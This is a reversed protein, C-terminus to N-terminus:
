PTFQSLFKKDKNEKVENVLKRVVNHQSIPADEPRKWSEPFQPKVKKSKNHRTDIPIDDFTEKSLDKSENLLKNFTQVLWRANQTAEPHQNSSFKFLNKNHNFKNGALIKFKRTQQENLELDEIRCSLTVTRNFGNNNDTFDTNFSLKIPNEQNTQPKYEQRFKALLPMEYASVRTLHEIRRKEHPTKGADIVPINSYKPPLGRQAVPTNTMHREKFNEIEYTYDLTPKKQKLAVITSLIASREADDPNYKEGLSEKRLNHLEFIQDAPLGEWKHPNLYLPQEEGVNSSYFRGLQCARTILRSSQRKVLM